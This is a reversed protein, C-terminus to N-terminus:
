LKCLIMSGLVALLPAQIKLPRMSVMAGNVANFSEVNRNKPITGVHFYYGLRFFREPDQTLFENLYIKGTLKLLHFKESVNNKAQTGFSFEDIQPM